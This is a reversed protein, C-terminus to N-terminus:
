VGLNRRVGTWSLSEILTVDEVHRRIQKQVYPPAHDVATDGDRDCPEGSHIRSCFFPGSRQSESVVISPFVIVVRKYPLGFLVM